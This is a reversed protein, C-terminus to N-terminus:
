SFLFIQNSDIQNLQFSAFGWIQARSLKNKENELIKQLFSSFLNKRIKIGYVRIRHLM